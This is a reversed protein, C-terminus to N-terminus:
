QQRQELATVTEKCLAYTAINLSQLKQVVEGLAEKPIFSSRLSNLGFDVGGLIRSVKYNTDEPVFFEVDLDGLEASLAELQALIMEHFKPLNCIKCDAAPNPFVLALYEEDTTALHFLQNAMEEGLLEQIQVSTLLEDKKAGLVASLPLGNDAAYKKLQELSVM